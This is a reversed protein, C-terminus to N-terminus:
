QPIMKSPIQPRKTKSCMALPNPPMNGHFSNKKIKLKACEPNDESM